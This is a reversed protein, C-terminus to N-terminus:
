LKALLEKKKENFEDETILGEKKLEGLKKLTDMIDDKSQGANQNGGGQNNNNKMMDMMMQGMAFGAGMDVGANGGGPNEAGKELANAAQFQMFKQMDGVMDM